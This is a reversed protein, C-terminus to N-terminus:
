ITRKLIAKIDDPSVIQRSNRKTVPHRWAKEAIADIVSSETLKTADIIESLRVPLGATKVLAKVADAASVSEDGLARSIANQRLQQQLSKKVDPDELNWSLVASLLVCSTVGHPVEFMETLAYGIGHSAGHPVKGLGTCAFWEAQQAQAIAELDDPDKKMAPLARSLLEIAQLFHSDFFPHTKISCFGEIAHDLSRIASSLWLESPTLTTLKPSYFIACPTLFRAKFGAKLGTELIQLSASESFSAGSLTTPISIIPLVSTNKTPSTQLKNQLDGVSGDSLKAYRLMESQSFIQFRLCFSVLKTSDIVFGGGIAVLADIPTDRFNKSLALVTQVQDDKSSVCHLKYTLSSSFNEDLSTKFLSFKENEFLKKSVIFGIRTLNRLTLYKTLEEFIQDSFVVTELESYQFHFPLNNM